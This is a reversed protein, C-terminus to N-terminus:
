AGVASSLVYELKENGTREVSVTRGAAILATEGARLMYESGEGRLWASGGVITLAAFSHNLAHLAQDGCHYSFRFHECDVLEVGEASAGQLASWHRPAPLEAAFDIVDMAQEIHLERKKGDLGLRDYDHIRFTLDSSQQVEYIVVGACLAHVTGPPSFVLDGRQVPFFRILEEVRGAAIAAAFDARGVGDVLGYAVRGADSHLVLWAEMKGADQLGNARAYADDPHVQVSLDQRADLLKILLPMNGGYRECVAAGLLDAGYDRVLAGLGMGALPGAAVTSERGAYSSLEFSEGIGVGTPLSKAFLEGLRRGGWVMERFYPKLPLIDPLQATM